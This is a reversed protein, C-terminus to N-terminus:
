TAQEVPTPQSIALDETPFIAEDGYINNRKKRYGVSGVVTSIPYFQSAQAAHQKVPIAMALAQAIAKHYTNHVFINRNIRMNSINVNSDIDTYELNQALRYGEVM